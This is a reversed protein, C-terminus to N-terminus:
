PAPPPLPRLEGILRLDGPVDAKSHRGRGDPIRRLPRPERGERRDQDAEGEPEDAVLSATHSHAYARERTVTRPPCHHLDYTSVEVLVKDGEVVKIRNMMLRGALPARVQHGNNLTVLLSGRDKSTVTGEFRELNRMYCVDKTQARGGSRFSLCRPGPKTARANIIMM